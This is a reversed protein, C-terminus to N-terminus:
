VSHSWMDNKADTRNSCLTGRYYHCSAHMRTALRMPTHTTHITCFYMGHNTEGVHLPKGDVVISLQLPRHWLALVAYDDLLHHCANVLRQHRTKGRDDEALQGIIESDCETSPALANAYVLADYNSMRGNHVLWGGDVPHPHSNSNDFRNGRTAYRCHGIIAIADGLMALRDLGDDMRGIQKFQRLRGARDVWAFGFAHRGYRMAGIACAIIRHMDPINDQTAGIFGFLGCM